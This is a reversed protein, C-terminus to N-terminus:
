YETIDAPDRAQQPQNESSQVLTKYWNNNNM